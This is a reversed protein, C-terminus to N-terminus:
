MYHFGDHSGWIDDGSGQVTYLGLDIETSQGALGVSGIDLSSFLSGFEKRDTPQGTPVLSTTPVVSASPTQSPSTTYSPVHSPADSPMLSISPEFSPM